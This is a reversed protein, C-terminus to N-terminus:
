RRKPDLKRKLAPRPGGTDTKRKVTKKKVLVIQPEDFAEPEITSGDKLKVPQVHIRSCGNIWETRAIAIGSFGTISDKVHDGLTFM